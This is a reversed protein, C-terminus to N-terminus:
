DKNVSNMLIGLLYFLEEVTGVGGFFIIIGYVIRVFAELRKEIDLMIILENVLSNFSEVVIISSEIM